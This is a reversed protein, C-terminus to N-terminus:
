ERVLYCATKLTQAENGLGASMNMLEPVDPSKMFGHFASVRYFNQGLKEAETRDKFPIIPSDTSMISLPVINEHLMRNHKVHRLPTQRM